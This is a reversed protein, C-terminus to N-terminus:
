SELSGLDAYDDKEEKKQFLVQLSMGMMHIM